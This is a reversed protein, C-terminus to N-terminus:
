KFDINDLTKFEELRDILKNIFSTPAYKLLEKLKYFDVNSDEKLNNNIKNDILNKFYEFDVKDVKQINKVFYNIYRKKSYNSTDFLEQETINLVDAIYPILEIPITIRGSLYSYITNESPINGTTKLKPELDRLKNSFNRKSIKQEKLIYNLKEYVEM